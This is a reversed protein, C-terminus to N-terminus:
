IDILSHNTSKSATKGQHTKEDLRTKAYGERLEGVSVQYYREFAKNTEHGTLRRVGEPSLHARLAQASSHRTGGYLDVGEVGLNECAKIWYRYLMRPGFPSGKPEGGGGRERRFFHLKPFGRPLSKLLQIDEDLLPVIKIKDTQRDTKHERIFIVGREQDIDEELISLLEGPRMNIYTCLWKVGVYVRPNKHWSLRHIEALIAEQTAKDITKRTGLQFTLEPFEPMEDPRIVRRRVLWRFYDHLVSKLNHRTKSSLDKQALLFDEIEGYQIEKVNKPGFHGISRLMLPRISKLSGPKVTEMKMALWKEALVEFGLPNSRQYDRADFSGEDTKFRIGTLFRSAEDYSQFRKFIKRGFRVSYTTARQKPHSPCCVQRGNDKMITGCIPCRETTYIGGVM